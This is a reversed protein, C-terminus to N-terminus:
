QAGQPVGRDGTNLPLRIGSALGKDHIDGLQNTSKNLAVDHLADDKMSLFFYGVGYDSIRPLGIVSLKPTSYSSLGAFSVPKSIDVRSSSTTGSSSSRASTISYSYRMHSNSSENLNLSIRRGDDTNLNVFGEEASRRWQKVEWDNAVLSGNSQILVLHLDMESLDISAEEASQDKAAVPMSPLAITVEDGEPRDELDHRVILMSNVVCYGFLLVGLGGALYRVKGRLRIPLKYYLSKGKFLFFLGLCILLIIIITKM